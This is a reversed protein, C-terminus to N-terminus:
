TIESLMKPTNGQFRSLRSAQAIEESIKKDDRIFGHARLLHAPLVVLAAYVFLSSPKGTMQAYGYAGGSVLFSALLFSNIQMFYDRNRVARMYLDTIKKPGLTQAALNVAEERLMLLDALHYADEFAEKEAVEKKSYELMSLM